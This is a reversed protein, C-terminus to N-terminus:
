IKYRCQSIVSFVIGGSTTFIQLSYLMIPMNEKKVKKNKRGSVHAFGSLKKM